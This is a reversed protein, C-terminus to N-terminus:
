PLTAISSSSWYFVEGGEPPPPAPSYPCQPIKALNMTVTPDFHRGTSPRWPPRPLLIPARIHPSHQRRISRPMIADISLILDSGFCSGIGFAREVRLARGHAAVYAQSADRLSVVGVRFFRSRRLSRRDIFLVSSCVRLIRPNASMGPNSGSNFHPGQWGTSVHNLKM